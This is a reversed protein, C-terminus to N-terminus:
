VKNCCKCSGGMMKTGAAIILLIPWIINFTQWSYAGLTALLFDVAFLIVM